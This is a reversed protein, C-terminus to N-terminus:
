WNLCQDNDWHCEPQDICGLMDSSYESCRVAEGTSIYKETYSVNKTTSNKTTPNVTTSASTNKIDSALVCSGQSIGAVKAVEVWDCGSKKRCAEYTRADQCYYFAMDYNSPGIVGQTKNVSSM